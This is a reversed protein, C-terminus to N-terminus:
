RPVMLDIGGDGSAPVRRITDPHDQAILVAMPLELMEGPYAGWDVPGM